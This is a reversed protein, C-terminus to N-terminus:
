VKSVQKVLEHKHKKKEILICDFKLGHLHLLRSLLEHKYGNAPLARLHLKRQLGTTEFKEYHDM